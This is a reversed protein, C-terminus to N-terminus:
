LFKHINKMYDTRKTPIETRLWSTREDTLIPLFDNIVAHLKTIMRVDRTGNTVRANLEAKERELQKVRNQLSAIM